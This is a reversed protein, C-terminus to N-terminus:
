HYLVWRGICSVYSVQTRDRPQSSGRSPLIAVWELIRAQLIGHVCSDPPSCNLPDCLTLCLQFRNLVCMRAGENEHSILIRSYFSVPPKGPLEAPLSDVRLASSRPKIGPNPLDGPSPCPLGSWYGQRSFGMSLPAQFAVTGPTAFFQVRSVLYACVAHSSVALCGHSHLSKAVLCWVCWVTLLSVAPTHAGGRTSCGLVHM